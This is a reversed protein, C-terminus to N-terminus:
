AQKPSKKYELKNKMDSVFQVRNPAFPKLLRSYRRVNPIMLRLLKDNKYLHNILCYFDGDGTVILAREFNEYEIMTQLVLEADVNGKIQGDALEFTPKFILIFGYYQLRSYLDKYKPVFGLFLFAKTIGYKERLYIRFKEFDLKWGQERVGLNLNQSDIFAFNNQKKQM